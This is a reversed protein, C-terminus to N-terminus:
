SGLLTNAIENFHDYRYEGQDKFFANGAVIVQAGAAIALPATRPNIGGDISIIFPEKAAKNYEAIKKVKTLTEPIFQQGGFGPHVSMVLIESCIGELQEFGDIPTEPNYSIGVKVRYNAESQIAGALEVPDTTVERHFIISDAGAKYFQPTYLLPDRIMLHVNLHMRSTARRVAEVILPGFSINPVFHGDMVDLHLIMIGAKEVASLTEGLRNFDASLISPALKVM